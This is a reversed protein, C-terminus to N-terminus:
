DLPELLGIPPDITIIMNETDIDLVIADVLPVSAIYGSLTEIELLIQINNSSFGALKGAEDGNALIVRAGILDGLYFEDELLEPFDARSLYLEAGQLKEATTRDTIEAFYIRNGPVVESLTMVRPEAGKLMLTVTSGVVLSVSEPNILKVHLGGKTGFAKSIYGLLILDSM